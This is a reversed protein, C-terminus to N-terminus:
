EKTRISDLVQKARDLEAIIADATVRRSEMYEKYQQFEKEADKPKKDGDWAERLADEDIPITDRYSEWDKLLQDLSRELSGSRQSLLVFSSQVNNRAGM